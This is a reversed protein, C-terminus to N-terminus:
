QQLYQDFSNEKNFKEHSYTLLGINIVSLLNEPKKVNPCKIVIIFDQQSNPGLKITIRKTLEKSVPNEIFWLEYKM